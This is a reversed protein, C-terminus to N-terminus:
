LIMLKQHIKGFNMVMKIQRERITVVKRLNLMEVMLMLSIVM